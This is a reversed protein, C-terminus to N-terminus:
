AFDHITQPKYSELEDEAQELERDQEDRLHQYAPDDLLESYKTVVGEFNKWASWLEDSERKLVPNGASEVDIINQVVCSAHYLQEISGTEKTHAFAPQHESIETVCLPCVDIVRPKSAPQKKHLSRM